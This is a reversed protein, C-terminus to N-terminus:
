MGRQKPGMGMGSKSSKKEGTPGYDTLGRVKLQKALAMFLPLDDHPVSVEGLYMFDVLYALDQFRINDPMILVPHPAKSKKLLARFYPSCASLIVKHASLQSEEDCALTCDLFDDEDRLIKFNSVVNHHYDKWKLVGYEMPTAGM